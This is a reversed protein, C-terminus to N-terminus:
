TILSPGLLSPTVRYRIEHQLLPLFLAFLASKYERGAGYIASSKKKQPPPPSLLLKRVKLSISLIAFSKPFIIFKTPILACYLSLILYAYLPFYLSCLLSNSFQSNTKSPLYSSLWLYPSLLSVTSARSVVLAVQNDDNDVGTNIICVRNGCLLSRM